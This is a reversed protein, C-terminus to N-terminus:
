VLIPGRNIYGSQLYRNHTRFIIETVDLQFAPLVTAGCGKCIDGLVWSYNGVRVQCSPCYLRGSLNQKIEQEMWGVPTIFVSQSCLNLGAPSSADDIVDEESLRSWMEDMWNPTEGKVHPLMNFASALTRKCKRCKFIMPYRGKSAAAAAAEASGPLGGAPDTDLVKDLSDRFLIKAKRMRESACYLRFMKYQINGPDLTYDMAEFLKLQALFGLHPNIIERKSKVKFFAKELKYHHKHMLYAIVVTASRSRGRFCHVLVSGGNNTASDIFDIAEVLRSLLDEDPLDSIQLHLFMIRPLMSSIKRPLPVSDVSVIHTIANSGLLIVDTAAEMNGLFLNKEIRTMKSSPPTSPTYGM